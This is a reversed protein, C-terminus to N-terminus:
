KLEPSFKFSGAVGREFYGRILVSKGAQHVYLEFDELTYVSHGNVETIVFGAPIKQQTFFQGAETVMIGSLVGYQDKEQSTIARLTAGMLTMVKPAGETEDEGKLSRLLITYSKKEAGRYAVVEIKDGPRYRGVIEQLQAANVVPHNNISVIVDGKHIGAIKAGTNEYVQQVYAGQNVKLGSEKVLTANVPTITVGLYGRKVEHFSLLDEMVKRVLLSPIAFSYGTYYGTSSAIATNIGILEGKSNVLAGGSNGKNVVADTQIFSEIPNNSDGRLLNINRGKASVIGVTVTSNLDMPNGVALVWEGVQVEDSDGFPMYRLSDTDIKLLALDTTPDYGKLEATFSRNDYLTIEIKRADAVVHYNTAIYGDPSIIVGSGTSVGKPGEEPDKPLFDPIPDSFLDPYKKGHSNEYTSRIHVVAQLSSESANVFDPRNLLAPSQMSSFSAPIREVPLTRYTPTDDFFRQYIGAGALGGLMSLGFVSISIWIVQRKNM